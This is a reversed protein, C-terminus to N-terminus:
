ARRRVDYQAVRKRKEGKNYDLSNHLRELYKRTRNFVDGMAKTIQAEYHEQYQTKLLAAQENGMDVRFDGAEPVPSYTVTSRLSVPWSTCLFMTPMTSCTAWSPQSVPHDGLRVCRPVSAGSRNFEQEFATMQAQYDFFM